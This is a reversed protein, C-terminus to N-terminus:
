GRDDNLPCVKSVGHLLKCSIHIRRKEKGSGTNFRFFELGPLFCAFRPTTQFDAKGRIDRGVTGLLCQIEIPLSQQLPVVVVDSRLSNEPMTKGVFCRIKPRWGSPWAAFPASSSADWYRVYGNNQLSALSSYPLYTTPAETGIQFLGHSM